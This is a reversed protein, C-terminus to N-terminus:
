VASSCVTADARRCRRFSRLTPWIYSLPEVTAKRHRKLAGSTGVAFGSRTPALVRRFNARDAFEAFFGRTEKLEAKTAHVVAYDCGITTWGRKKEITAHACETFDCTQRLGIQLNVIAPGILWSVQGPKIM